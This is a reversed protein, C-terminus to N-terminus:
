TPRSARPSLRRPSLKTGSKPQCTAPLNAPSTTLLNRLMEKKPPRFHLKELRDTWTLPRVYGELKDSLIQFETAFFEIIDADGRSLGCYIDIETIYNTYRHEELLWKRFDSSQGMRHAIFFSLFINYRFYVANGEHSFVKISVFHEILKQLDHDMGLDNFFEQTWDYLEKYDISFSNKRCMREAIAGLYDIQNRYDFSSRFIYAPKYKQLASEVFQEIVTSSNIPNFGEIDQLISLYIVVYAATLPIGLALFKSHIDEVVTDTQYRPPLKWKEVLSRIKGRTLTGIQAFLFGEIGLVPRLRQIDLFPMKVAVILQAKPYQKKVAQLFSIHATSTADINDVLVVLRGSDHIPQLKLHPEDSYPLGSRLTSTVVAAYAGRIRHSDVFTPVVAVPINTCEQHFQITLYGLLSTAGFEVDSSIIIGDTGNLIQQPTLRENTANEESRAHKIVPEVFTDLLSRDTITVNHEALVEDVTDLLWLCVDDNDPLNNAKAWFSEAASTNFFVGGANVNTGVDFEMRNVYYTRYRAATEKAPGVDIIAYGNYIGSKEYLAGGQVMFCSTGPSNEATPRPQHVHGFFHIDSRKAIIPIVARSSAENLDAITHHALSYVKHDNPVTQFGALVQDGALALKGRDYESGELGCGFATNFAVFSLKRDFFHYTHTLSNTWEAGCRKALDFFGSNIAALYAKTPDRALHTSLADQDRLAEIMKAREDSWKKVATLSVDHNGPCFVVDTPKLGLTSLLPELFNKEFHAYVDPEDPNNVLDGSFVVLDVADAAVEKKLDDLLANIIAVQFPSGTVYHLDTLHLIRM